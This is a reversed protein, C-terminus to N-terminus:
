NIDVTQGTVKVSTDGSIEVTSGKITLKGSTELTLDGGQQLRVTAEGAVLELTGNSSNTQQLSLRTEGVAVQVGADDVTLTVPVQGDLKLTASRTGDGPTQVRVELRKTADAEDGPLVMVLEGPENQPPAVAQSYLRGVVVPAHLDGGAFVVLVLDEELPLSAAGILQTAIPVRPLVIGWERLAVTCAYDTAGNASDAGDAGFVSTVVGLAPPWQQRAEHRAIQRITQVLEHSM